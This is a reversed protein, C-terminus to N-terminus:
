TQATSPQGDSVADPSYNDAEGGAAIAVVQASLSDM